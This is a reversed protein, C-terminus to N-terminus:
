HVWTQFGSGNCGNTYVHGASDGDLCLYTQENQYIATNFASAASATAQCAIAHRHDGVDAHLAALMNLAQAEARPAGIERALAEAADALVGPAIGPSALASSQALLREPIM